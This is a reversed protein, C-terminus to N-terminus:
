NYRNTVLLIINCGDYCFSVDIRYVDINRVKDYIYYEGTVKKLTTLKDFGIFRNVDLDISMPNIDDDFDIIDDDAQVIIIQSNYLVFEFHKREKKNTYYMAIKTLNVKIDEESNCTLKSIKLNDIGTRWPRIAIGDNLVINNISYEYFWDRIDQSLRFENSLHGKLCGKCYKQIVFAMDDTKQKADEILLEISQKIEDVGYDSEKSKYRGRDNIDENGASSRIIIMDESEINLFSCAHFINESLSDIFHEKDVSVSLRCYKKFVENSICVFPLTWEIPIELLGRAKQGIFEKISNADKVHYFTSENILITEM